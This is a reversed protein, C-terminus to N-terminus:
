RSSHTTTIPSFPMPAPAIATPVVRRFTPASNGAANPVAPQVQPLPNMQGSLAAVAVDKVAILGAGVMSAMLSGIVLTAKLWGPM